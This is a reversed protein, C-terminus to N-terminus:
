RCLITFQVVVIILIHATVMIMIITMNIMMIIMIILIVIVILITIPNRLIIIPDNERQIQSYKHSYKVLWDSSLFSM